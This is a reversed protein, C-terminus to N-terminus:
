FSGVSMLNRGRENNFRRPGPSKRSDARLDERLINESPFFGRTKIPNVCLIM